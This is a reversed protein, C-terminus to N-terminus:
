GESELRDSTIKHAKERLWGARNWDGRNSAMDAAILLIRVERPVSTDYKPDDM